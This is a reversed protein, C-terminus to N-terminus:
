PGLLYDLVADHQAERSQEGPAPGAPKTRVRTRASDGFGAASPDASPDPLGPIPEPNAAADDLCGPKIPRGFTECSFVLSVPLYARAPDTIPDSKWRETPLPIGFLGPADETGMLATVFDNFVFALQDLGVGAPGLLGLDVGALTRFAPSGTKLAVSITNAFESARRLTPRADEPFAIISELLPKWRDSERLLESAVPEATTLVRRIGGMSRQARSLTDPARDLIEAIAPQAAQLEQATAAFDVVTADVQGSRAAVQSSVRRANVLAQELAANQGRFEALLDGAAEFGPRLRLIAENVDTGRRELATGLEVSLAQVGARVEPSFTSLAEDFRPRAITRNPAIAGRLPARANGAALSLYSDGLLDQQRVAVSADARLPPLDEDVDM